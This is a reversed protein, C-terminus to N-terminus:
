QRTSPTLACLRGVRLEYSAIAGVEVDVVCRAVPADLFECSGGCPRETVTLEYRGRAVDVQVLRQPLVQDLTDAWALEGSPDRLEVFFLSGEDPNPGDDDIRDVILRGVEWISLTAPVVFTVPTSTDSTSMSGSGTTAM